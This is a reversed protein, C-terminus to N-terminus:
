SVAVSNQEFTTYIVSKCSSLLEQRRKEINSQHYLDDKKRYFMYKLIM